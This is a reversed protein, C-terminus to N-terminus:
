GIDGRRQGVPADEDGTAPLAGCLDPVGRSVRETRCTREGVCARDPGGREKRVTAHKDDTIAQRLDPFWALPLRGSIAVQRHHRRHGARPQGAAVARTEVGCPCTRAPPMMPWGRLRGRAVVVGAALGLQGLGAQQLLQPQHGAESSRGM